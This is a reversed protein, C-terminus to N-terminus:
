INVIPVNIRLETLNKFSFKGAKFTNKNKSWHRKRTLSTNSREIFASLFRTLGIKKKKELLDFTSGPSKKLNKFWINVKGKPM